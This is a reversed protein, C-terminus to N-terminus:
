AGLTKLNGEELLKRPQDMFCLFVLRRAAVLELPSPHEKLKSEWDGRGSARLCRAICSCIMKLSLYKGCMKLVWDKLKHSGQSVETSMVRAVYFVLDPHTPKKIKLEESPIGEGSSVQTLPWEDRPQNLFAPGKQWM